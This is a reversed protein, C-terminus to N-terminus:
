PKAHLNGLNLSNLGDRLAILDERFLGDIV